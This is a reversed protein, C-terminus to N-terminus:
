MELVVLDGRKEQKSKVLTQSDILLPRLCCASIFLGLTKEGLRTRGPRLETESRPPHSPIIIIPWGAASAAVDSRIVHSRPVLQSKLEDSGVLRPTQGYEQVVSPQRSLPQSSVTTSHKDANLCWVGLSLDQTGWAAREGKGEAGGVRSCALRAGGAGRLGNLSM